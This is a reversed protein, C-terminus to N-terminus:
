NTMRFLHGAVSWVLIPGCIPLIVLYMENPTFACHLYTTDEARLECLMKDTCRDFVVASARTLHVYLRRSVACSYAAYPAKCMVHTWNLTFDTCRLGDNCATFVYADYLVCELIVDAFAGFYYRSTERVTDWIELGGAQGAVVVLIGAANINAYHSIGVYLRDRRKLQLSQSIDWKEIYGEAITYLMTGDPSCMCSHVYRTGLVSTTEEWSNMDLLILRSKKAVIMFDRQPVLCCTSACIIRPLAVRSMTDLNYIVLGSKDSLTAVLGNAPYSNIELWLEAPLGRGNRRGALILVLINPRVHRHPAFSTTFGHSSM